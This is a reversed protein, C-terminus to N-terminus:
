KQAVFRIEVKRDGAQPNTRSAAGYGLYGLKTTVGLKALAKAVAKARAAALVRDSAKVSGSYKVFGTILVFGRKGALVKAAAAIQKRDAADLIASDASFRIPTVVTVGALVPTGTVQNVSVVATVSPVAVIVPPTQLVSPIVISASASAAGTGISNVAVVTFKYAQGAVAGAIVCSTAATACGLGSSSSVVYGSVQEGGDSLPAGWSLTITTGSYGVRLSLPASPAKKPPVVVPPAVYPSTTAAIATAAISTGVANTATLSASYNTGQTLNSITCTLTTTTCTSGDNLTITYATIASGGDTLPAVWSFAISNNAGVSTLTRPASAVTQIVYIGPDSTLEVTVTGDAVATGLLTAVGDQISYVLAGAKISSNTITLSVAKGTNTNPVTGDTALWSVAVSLLYTNTGSILSQAYSTDAILDIAVITGTPLAGAPLNVLVSSSTNSGAFNTGVSPQATLTGIRTLNGPAIGYLSSQVWHAYLTTSATPTFTSGANGILTGGTAATYWGVFVFHSRTPATLTISASNAVASSTLAGVGHNEDFNITFNGSAWLAYLTTNQTPVFPSTLATGSPTLSWGAFTYGDRVQNTIGPLAFGVAGVTYSRNAISSGSGGNWDYIVTYVHPVWVATFAINSLGVTYQAGAGLTQTGDNWGGFDYGTRGIAAALAFTDGYHLAAQTPPTTSAGNAAYTITYDNAQWNAYLLYSGISVTFASAAAIATGSQDVWGLFTYGARTPAAHATISQQDTCLNGALLCETDVATTGAAATGGGFSYRVGFVQVWQATLTVPTVGLLYLEGARYISSGDSWGVFVHSNGGITVTNDIGNSLTIRTGYNGSTNSPFAVFSSASAAGKDYTVAIVMITWQAYLIVNSTTTYTGAIVTGSPSTAWGAFTYGTKALTGVGPLTVATSATTYSDSTVPSGSRAASGTAGNNNYDITYTNALWIAYVVVSQAGMTVGDGSNYTFGSGNAATNWGGFSYGTRTLSGTNSRITITQGINYVTSDVPVAGANAGNAFYTIGYNNATWVAYLTTDAIFAVSQADAHTVTGGSSTSWGMFTYGTRTFNNALLTAGSPNTISQSRTTSTGYNSDLTVTVASIVFSQSVQAAAAYFTNGAQNANLTCTGLSLLTVTGSSVTCVSNTASTIAVALGSSASGSAVFTGSTVTKGVISGFSIVNNGLGITMTFTATTGALSTDTPVFTGTITATGPKLLNLTAGSVAAVTADSSGYTWIGAVAGQIANSTVAPPTMAHTANPTYTVTVNAWSGATSGASAIVLTQTQAAPTVYNPSVGSATATIVCNGAAIITIIGTASGVSCAASSTSYAITGSSLSASVQRTQGTEGYTLGTPAAAFVIANAAQSVNFTKTVATAASYGTDGAQNATVSCSGAGAITLTSGSVSCVASNGTTYTVALGSTATATLAITSAGYTVTGLTQTWNISNGGSTVTLVMTVTGSTYNSTASTFTGTITTTGAKLLSLTAGSQVSAVTSDSSAYSWTGTNGSTITPPTLTYTAGTSYATSASAWTFTSTAASVTLSGTSYTIAYNSAVFTGGTAASPTLTYSGINESSAAGGSATITVSGITQSGVLGSSTFASSGSGYTKTTGYTKTDNNATVTLAKTAVNFSQQVQTAAYYTANGAQNANLTCTGAAIMTVTFSSVTCVATTASTLAVTLGSTATPSVTFAADGYTKDTISNFTISQATQVTMTAASTYTFGSPLISGTTGTQTVKARYKYGSNATSSQTATTYSAGTAGSINAWTTGSDTSQQWQYAISATTLHSSKTAAATFTATSGTSITTSTPSTSVTPGPMYRIYVYGSGGAGASSGCDAGGGGRNAAATCSASGGAYSDSTGYVNNNRGAGGGGYRLGTLSSVKGTGANMGAAAAGAGGGGGAACLSAGTCNGTTDYTPAGGSTGSGNVGNILNNGSNGGLNSSYITGTQPSYGGYARVGVSGVVVLSTGGTGGQTSTDCNGSATGGAGVGITASAGPTVPQNFVEAFGGGGGGQGWVYACKGRTGGGGGGVTLIDISYTDAPITWTGSAVVTTFDAYCYGDTACATNNPTVAAAEAKIPLLNVGLIATTLVAFSAVIRRWGRALIFEVGSWEICNQTCFALGLIL